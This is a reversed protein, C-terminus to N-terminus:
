EGVREHLLRDVLAFAEEQSRVTGDLQADRVQDLLQKYRPGPPVGHRTLDDGNLVPAPNLEEPPLQLKQECFDAEATEKSDALARARHLGILEESGPTVLMRQLKSWPLERAQDLARHHKVLWCVLEEEKCSLKWRRCIEAAVRAGPVDLPVGADGAGSSHTSRNLRPKGGNSKGGKSAPEDKTERAVRGVEHLLTALALPFAPESLRDLVRLTHDWWTPGSPPEVTLPMGVLPLVEPVVVELLGVERLLECSRARSWHILMLRMEQAIREASVATIQPAMEQIAAATEADLKFDYIASFRVGRLMRLKDEAFRARPQGIARIVKARLDEMGGVFDIVQDAIPDYFMGNITFDRRQADEEPTSFAVSDPHRGDSYEADRRFTTVEIQGTEKTGLVAIVGFAAGIALTRRQGFVQRTQDPTANTAVDYDKPMRGLLEDRVCGGAWYADFGQKRLRSLVEVAFERQKAPVLGPTM